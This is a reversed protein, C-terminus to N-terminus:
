FRFIFLRLVLMLVNVVVDLTDEKGSVGKLGQGSSSPTSVPTSLFEGLKALADTSNGTGHAALMLKVEDNLQQDALMKEKSTTLKQRAEQYKTYEGRNLWFGQCKPCRM